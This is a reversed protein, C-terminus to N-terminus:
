IDIQLHAHVHRKTMAEEFSWHVAALLYRRIRKKQHGNSQLWLHDRRHGKVLSIRIRRITGIAIDPKPNGVTGRGVAGQQRKLVDDGSITSSTM